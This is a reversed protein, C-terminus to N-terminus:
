NLRLLRGMGGRLSRGVARGIWTYTRGSMAAIYFLLSFCRTAAPAPAHASGPTISFRPRKKEPSGPPIGQWCAGSGQM